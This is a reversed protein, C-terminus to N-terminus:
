RTEPSHGSRLVSEKASRRTAARRIANYKFLAKELALQGFHYRAALEKPDVVTLLTTAVVTACALGVLLGDLGKPTTGAGGKIDRAPSYASRVATSIATGAEAVSLIWYLWSHLSSRNAYIDRESAAKAIAPPDQISKSPAATQSVPPTQQQSEAFLVPSIFLAVFAIVSLRRYIHKRNMM